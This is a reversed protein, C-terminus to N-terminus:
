CLWIHCAKAEDSAFAFIPGHSKTNDTITYAVYTWDAGALSGVFKDSIMFWYRYSPLRRTSRRLEIVLVATLWNMNRACKLQHPLTSIEITYKPLGERIVNTLKQSRPASHGLHESIL